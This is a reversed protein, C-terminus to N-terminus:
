ENAERLIEKFNLLTPHAHVRYNTFSKDYLLESFVEKIIKGLLIYGFFVFGDISSSEFNSWTLGFEVMQRPFLCSSYEDSILPPKGTVLAYWRDWWYSGVM